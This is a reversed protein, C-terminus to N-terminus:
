NWLKPENITLGLERYGFDLMVRHAIIQAWVAYGKENPHFGDTYFDPPFEHSSPFIDIVAADANKAVDRIIANFEM